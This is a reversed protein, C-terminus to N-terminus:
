SVTDLLPDRGMEWISRMKRKEQYLAAIRNGKRRRELTKQARYLIGAGPPRKSRLRRAQQVGFGLALIDDDPSLYQRHTGPDSQRACRGFLQNDMRPSDHLESMIVHLGGLHRVEETLKIDTGRGAMGTAVVVKGRTGAAAIIEAEAASEQANLVQHPIGLKSLRSSLYVSKEVSRTGVLVPRGSEALDRVEACIAQWKEEETPLYRTPLKQRQSPQQPPIRVVPMKYVKRFENAAAIATGTMGAMHRYSLFLGQITIKAAHTQPATIKIREQAQIAQHIGDQWQRGEGLRGTAENILVVQDDRVVYQQDRHYDRQALIATEVREYQELVSVNGMGSRHVLSRVLVRGQRTLEVQRTRLDYRYHVDQTFRPAISRAWHYLAQRRDTVRGPAGIVMPMDAEDVLVADAEDVVVFFLDRMVTESLM